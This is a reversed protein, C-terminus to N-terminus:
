SDGRDKTIWQRVYTPCNKLEIGNAECAKLFRVAEEDVLTLESLDLVIRQAKAEDSILRKLEAMNGSDVRGSVSFVVEGNKQRTIKQM